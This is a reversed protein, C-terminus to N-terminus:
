LRGALAAALALGALAALEAAAALRPRYPHDLLRMVAGAAQGSKNWMLDIAKQGAGFIRLAVIGSWRGAGTIPGRYLADMDVLSAGRERPFLGVAHMSLFAVGAAGLLEIQRAIRDPAFPSMTLESPTLGFTAKSIEATLIAYDREQAIQHKKWEDTLTERIEIGRM